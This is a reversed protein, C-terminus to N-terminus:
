KKERFVQSWLRVELSTPSTENKSMEKELKREKLAKGLEAAFEPCTIVRAGKHRAFSAIERDSSVVSLNRLDKRGALFDKIMADATAGPPPHIIDFKKEPLSMEQGDPFPAGDFVLIIRTRRMRQFAILRRVLKMKNDPHKHFGRFFYGLLNSGDILYAM